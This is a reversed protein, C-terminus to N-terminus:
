VNCATHGPLPGCHWLVRHARSLAGLASANRDDNWRRPLSVNQCAGRACVAMRMAILTWLMFDSKHRAGTLSHQFRAFSSTPVPVVCREAELRAFASCHTANSFCVLCPATSAVPLHEPPDCASDHTSTHRLGLVALGRRLLVNISPWVFASRSGALSASGPMPLGRAKLATAFGRCPKWPDSWAAEWWVSNQLPKQHYHRASTQLM